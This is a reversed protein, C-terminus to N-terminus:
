ADEETVSPFKKWPDLAASIFMALFLVAFGWEGELASITLLAGMGAGLIWQFVYDFLSIARM